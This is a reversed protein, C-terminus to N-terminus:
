NLVVQVLPEGDLLWRVSAVSGLYGSRTKVLDGQRPVQSMELEQEQPDGDTWFIKIPIM